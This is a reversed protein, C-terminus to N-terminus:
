EFNFDYFFILGLSLPAMVDRGTWDWETDFDTREGTGHEWRAVSLWLLGADWRATWRGTPCERVCLLTKNVLPAFPHTAVLLWPPRRPSWPPHAFSPWASSPLQPLQLCMAAAGVAGWGKTHGLHMILHGPGQSTGRPHLRWSQDGHESQLLHKTAARM